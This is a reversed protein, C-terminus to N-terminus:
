KNVISFLTRRRKYVTVHRQGVNLISTFTKLTIHLSANNEAISMHATHPILGLSRLKYAPVICLFM